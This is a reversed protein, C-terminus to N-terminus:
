QLNDEYYLTNSIYNPHVIENFHEPEPIMSIIDISNQRQLFTNNNTNIAKIIRRLLPLIPFM